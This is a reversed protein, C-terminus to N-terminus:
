GRLETLRISTDWTKPTDKDGFEVQWEVSTVIFNEGSLLVGDEDLVWDLGHRQGPRVWDAPGVPKVSLSMPGNERAFHMAAMYHADEADSVIIDEVTLESGLDL